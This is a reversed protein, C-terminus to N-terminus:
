EEYGSDYEFVYMLEVEGNEDLFLWEEDEWEEDEWEEDEWEEDEWEQDEWEEDEWEENDEGEIWMWWEKMAKVEETDM